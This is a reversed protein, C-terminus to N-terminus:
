KINEPSYANLISQEDIDTVEWYEYGDSQGITRTTAKKSAAELAGAVHLKAFEKMANIVWPHPIFAEMYYAEPTEKACKVGIEEATPINM